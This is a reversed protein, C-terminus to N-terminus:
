DIEVWSRNNTGADYDAPQLGGGGARLQYIKYQNGMVFKAIFGTPLQVTTLGQLNAPAAGILGTMSPFLQEGLPLQVAQLNNPNIASRAISIPIQLVTQPVGGPLTIRITFFLGTIPDETTAGAFELMAPTSCVLTGSMSYALIGDNAFANTYAANAQLIWIYQIEYTDANGAVARYVNLTCEPDCGNADGAILQKAGYTSFVVKWMCPGVQTVVCAGDGYATIAAALPTQLEAATIATSLDSLGADQGGYNLDFTQGESTPVQQAVGIACEVTAGTIDVIDWIATFDATHPKVALIRVIQSELDFVGPLSAGGYSSLSAVLGQKKQDAINVILDLTPTAM